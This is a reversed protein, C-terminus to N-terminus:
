SGALAHHVAMDMDDGAIGAIDIMWAVSDTADYWM